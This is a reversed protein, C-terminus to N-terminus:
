IMAAAANSAFIGAGVSVSISWASDPLMQRQPVYRRIRSAILRAACVVVAWLPPQTHIARRASFDQNGTSGSATPQKQSPLDVRARPNQCLVNLRHRWSERRVRENADASVAPHGQDDSLHFHSLTSERRHRHEERLLELDLEVLHADLICRGVFDQGRNRTEA